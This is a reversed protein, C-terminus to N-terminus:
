VSIDLARDSTLRPLADGDGGHVGENDDDDGGRGDAEDGNGASAGGQEADQRLSFSLSGSDANLGADSLARELSRSDRQLLDLTEQREVTVVAIARGDHAVEIKVDVRGLEAPNLQVSLRNLGNNVAKGIEFAVQVAPQGTAVAPRPAQAAASKAASTSNGSQSIQGSPEGDLDGTAGALPDGASLQAAAQQVAPPTAANQQAAPIATQSPASALQAFVGKDTQSGGQQLAGALNGLHATKDSVAGGSSQNAAGTGATLANHSVGSKMRSIAEVLSDAGPRAEGRRLRPLADKSAADAALPEGGSLIQQVAVQVQPENAATKDKAATDVNSVAQAPEDSLNVAQVQQAGTQTQAVADNDVPGTAAKEDRPTESAEKKTVDQSADADDSADDSADSRDTREQSADHPREDRSPEEKTEAREDRATHGDTKDDRRDSVRETGDDRKDEARPREDSDTDAREIHRELHDSFPEGEPAIEKGVVIPPLMDAPLPGLNAVSFTM